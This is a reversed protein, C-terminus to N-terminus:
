VRRRPQFSLACAHLDRAALGNGHVVRSQKRSEGHDRSTGTQLKTSHGRRMRALCRPNRLYLVSARGLATSTQDAGTHLTTIPRRCSQRHGSTRFGHEAASLISESYKFSSLRSPRIGHVLPVFRAGPNRRFSRLCRVLPHRRRQLFQRRVPQALRAPQRLLLDRFCHM